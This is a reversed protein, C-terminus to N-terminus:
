SYSIKESIMGGEMLLCINLIYSKVNECSHSHLIDDEPIYRQTSRTHVSTEASLIAEIKLTCFDALTSVRTGRKHIKRGQLHLRYTGGFRRTVCSRCLAVDWFIVNKLYELTRDTLFYCGTTPLIWCVNRLFMRDLDKLRDLKHQNRTKRVRWVQLHLHYTGGFRWSVEAASRPTIDWLVSNKIVVATLVEFVWSWRYTAKSKILRWAMFLRSRPGSLRM